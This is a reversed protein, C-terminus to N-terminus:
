AVDEERYNYHPNSILCSLFSLVHIGEASFLIVPVFLIGLSQEKKRLCIVCSCNSQMSLLLRMRLSIWSVHLSWRSCFPIHMRDVSAVDLFLVQNGEGVTILYCNSRVFTERERERKGVSHLHGDVWDWYLRLLRVWGKEVRIQMPCRIVCPFIFVLWSVSISM